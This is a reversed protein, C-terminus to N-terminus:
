RKGRKNGVPPKKLQLLPGGTGFGTSAPNSIGFTLGASTTLGPDSFNFGTTSTSGFGGLSSSGIGSSQLGTGIGSGFATTFSAGLSPQPGTSSQQQQTLTAAMAVAAANPISNFPTPGTTIRPASQWKKSESRRAEFVDVSDGLFAKRYGLYQERLIKVNEHISQLQAALAVFTQYLKQMALSLDQPAIYSSNAQIAIHNELEEIQHRYQQLQVEFQEVLVRFYSRRMQLVERNLLPLSRTRQEKLRTEGSFKVIEEFLLMTVQGSEVVLSSPIVM